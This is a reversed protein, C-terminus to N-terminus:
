SDGPLNGFKRRLAVLDALDKPRGSARKTAVYDELGIISVIQGAMEVTQTRKSADDFDCGSLFNLIDVAYPKAGFTLLKNTSSALIQIEDRSIPLGFERLAAYLKAINEQTRRIWVDFDETYRAEAHYALAYAGVVM